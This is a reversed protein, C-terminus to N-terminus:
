RNKKFDKLVKTVLEHAEDFNQSHIKTLLEKSLTQAEEVTIINKHVLISLIWNLM